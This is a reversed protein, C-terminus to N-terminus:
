CSPLSPTNHKAGSGPRPILLGSFRSAIPSFLIVNNWRWASDSSFVGPLRDRDKGLNIMDRNRYMIQLRGDGVVLLGKSSYLMVALDNFTVAHFFGEDFDSVAINLEGSSGTWIRRNCLVEFFSAFSKVVDSVSDFVTLHCHVCHNGCPRCRNGM